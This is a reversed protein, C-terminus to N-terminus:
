ATGRALRAAVAQNQQELAEQRNPRGVAGAKEEEVHKQLWEAKYGTWGRLCSIKLAAALTMGAKEAQEKAADVVTETVAASKGKRLKLWDQATKKDVGAAILADLPKWVPEIASPAQAEKPNGKPEKLPEQPNRTGNETSNSPFVTSNPPFDPVTQRSNRYQETKPVTGNETSNKREFNFKYVPIQGTKGTRKGTDTLYGAQELRGLASIVTKRDQGTKQCLAAISPWALGDHQANDGLSVLVFKLSSPKIDQCFAWQMAEISM